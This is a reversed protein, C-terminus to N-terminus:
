ILSVMNVKIIDLSRLIFNYRSNHTTLIVTLKKLNKISKQNKIM